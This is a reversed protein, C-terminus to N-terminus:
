RGARLREREDQCHQETGSTINSTHTVGDEVWVQDLFWRPSSNTADQPIMVREIRFETM